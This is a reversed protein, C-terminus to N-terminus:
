ACSIYDCTSCSLAPYQVTWVRSYIKQLRRRYWQGVTSRLQWKIIDRRNDQNGQLQNKRLHAYVRSRFSHNM